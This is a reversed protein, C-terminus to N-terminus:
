DQLLNTCERVVDACIHQRQERYKTELATLADLYRQKLADDHAKLASADPKIAIAEELRLFAFESMPVDRWAFNLFEDKAECAALAAALENRVDRNNSRSAQLSFVLEKSEEQAAALQHRLAEIEGTLQKKFPADPLCAILTNIKDM